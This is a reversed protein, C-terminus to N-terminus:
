EIIITIKAGLTEAIMVLRALSFREYSMNALRYYDTSDIGIAQSAHCPRAYMASARRNVGEMLALKVQCVADLSEAPTTLPM